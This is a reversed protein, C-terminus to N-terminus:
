VSQILLYFLIFTITRQENNDKLVTMIEIDVFKSINIKLSSGSQLVNNQIISKLRFIFTNKKKTAITKVQILILSLNKESLTIDNENLDTVTYKMWVVTVCKELFSDSISKGINRVNKALGPYLMERRDCQPKLDSNSRKLPFCMTSLSVTWM